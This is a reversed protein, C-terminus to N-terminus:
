AAAESLVWTKFASLGEPRGEASDPEALWYGWEENITTDPFLEVLRGAAV